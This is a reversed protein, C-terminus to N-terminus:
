GPATESFVYKIFTLICYLVLLVEVMIETIFSYVLFIYSLQQIPCSICHSCAFILSLNETEEKGWMEKAHKRLVRQNSFLNLFSFWCRIYFSEPILPSIHGKCVWRIRHVADLSQSLQINETTKSLDKLASLIGSLNFFSFISSRTFWLDSPTM